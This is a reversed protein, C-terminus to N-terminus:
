QTMILANMQLTQGQISSMTQRDLTLYFYIEFARLNFFLCKQDLPLTSSERRVPPGRNSGRTYGFSNTMDQISYYPLRM